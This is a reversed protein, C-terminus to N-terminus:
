LGGPQSYFWVCYSCALLLSAGSERWLGGVGVSEESEPDSMINFWVYFEILSFRQASVFALFGSQAFCPWPSKCRSLFPLPVPGKASTSDSINILLALMHYFRLWYWYRVIANVNTIVPHWAFSSSLLQLFVTYHQCPPCVSMDTCNLAQLVTHKQHDQLENNFTHLFDLQM